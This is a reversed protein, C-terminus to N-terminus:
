SRLHIGIAELQAAIEAHIPIGEALNHERTQWGREGPLTIALSPETQHLWAILNEVRQGFREADVFASIDLALFLKSSGADLGSPDARCIEASLMGGALAGTLLEMMFALGAGKHGGFPLVKKGALIAAPDDSPQGAADLGWGSPVKKGERLYTGIKGVAAQSMAMDLVIPERGHERPVAIALPNNGLLPLTSDWAVMNPIANTTCIGIVGAQAARCAYAHARGWHTVRTALCAGVGARKAREVAHQMAQVSVFRGPGNDGDLVCSAPRERIIKIQPNATVRGERIGKVLGPLMRVGHSPVGLLDAEAMVEAEVACVHAPVGADALAKTIIGLLQTHQIRIGNSM